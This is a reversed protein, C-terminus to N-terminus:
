FCNMSSYTVFTVYAISWECQFVWQVRMAFIHMFFSPIIPTFKTWFLKWNTSGQFSMDFWNVCSFTIWCLIMKSNDYIIIHIDYTLIIIHYEYIHSIQLISYNKYVLVWVWNHEYKKCNCKKLSCIFYKTYLYFLHSFFYIM